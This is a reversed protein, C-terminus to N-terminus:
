FFDGGAAPVNPAQPPGGATPPPGGAPAKGNQRRRYVDGGGRLDHAADIGDGAECFLVFGVGCGM